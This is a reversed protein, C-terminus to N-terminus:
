CTSASLGDHGEKALFVEVFSALMTLRERAVSSGLRFMPPMKYPAGRRGDPLYYRRLVDPAVDPLPFHEAARRLHGGTDGDQLRRVFVTDLGTGSVVGLQGRSSVANALRWTSVGVGMGGQIIRPLATTAPVQSRDHEAATLEGRDDVWWLHLSGPPRASGHHRAM